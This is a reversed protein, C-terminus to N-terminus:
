KGEIDTIVSVLEDDVDIYRRKLQVTCRFTNSNGNLSSQLSPSPFEKKTMRAAGMPGLNGIAGPQVVANELLNHEPKDLPNHEHLAVVDPM